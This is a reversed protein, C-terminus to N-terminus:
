HKVPRSSSKAHGDGVRWLSVMEWPGPMAKAMDRQVSCSTAVSAGGTDSPNEGSSHDIITMCVTMHVQLFCKGSRRTRTQAAEVSGFRTAM